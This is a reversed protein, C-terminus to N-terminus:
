LLLYSFEIYFIGEGVLCWWIIDCVLMVNVLFYKGIDCLFEIVLLLGIWELNNEVIVGILLDDFDVFCEM